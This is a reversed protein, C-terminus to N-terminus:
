NRNGLIDHDLNRKWGPVPIQTGTGPYCTM